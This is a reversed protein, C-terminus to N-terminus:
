HSTLHNCETNMKEARIADNISDFSESKLIQEKILHSTKLIEVSAVRGSGNKRMILRQSFVYQLTQSLSLKIRKQMHPSFYSLIRTLSETANATHLTALVLHGTEAAMLATEVTEKDRLEGVLIVDPDQRLASRLAPAFGKVDTGIERQNITARKDQFIYEIPDEITIIHKAYQSNIQEVISALTTSKGSGTAGTVLVLGRQLNPVNTFEKPLLLEEMTYISSSIVRLVLGYSKNQRFLNVRYRHQDKSTYSFDLDELEKLKDSMHSPLIMSIWSKMDNLTIEKGDSSAVLQGNHRFKPYSGVKLIIDSAGGRRAAKLIKDFNM